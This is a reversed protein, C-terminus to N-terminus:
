KHSKNLLLLPTTLIELSNAKSIGNSNDSTITIVIGLNSLFNLGVWVHLNPYYLSNIIAHYKYM